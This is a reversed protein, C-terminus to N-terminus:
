FSGFRVPSIRASAPMAGAALDLLLLSVAHLPSAHRTPHAHSNRGPVTESIAPRSHNGSRDIGTLSKRTATSSAMRYRDLHNALITQFTRELKGDWQPDDPRDSLFLLHDRMEILAKQVHEMRQRMVDQFQIHGLAQTMRNVSEEYSEDVESIVSLLLGSNKAFEEQMQGLEDMLSSMSNTREHEELATHAENMESDVKSCTANIRAAIDAAAKTSLIALKRVEYAVVSFGKGAKGARAAEIM